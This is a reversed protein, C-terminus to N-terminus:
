LLDYAKIKRYLTSKSLGLMKAAQRINNNCEALAKKLVLKEVEKMPLNSDESPDETIVSIQIQEEGTTAYINTNNSALIEKPLCDSRIVADGCMCVAYLLANQLQRVNGPWHYTLLQYKAASSLTPKPLDNEQSFITTFHEALQIVEAGRERLPPIELSFVSIRYYLDERFQNNKVLEFLNRNTATILRFDVPIDRSGGVHTIVKNELVRLLVAQLELPMDGIEDLFLTGGNAQEIKGSRGQKEAGTFAGGEYGFLESEILSKPIAACNLAIFPGNPRSEHHIAQAYVEKGVGSEGTIMINYSSKAFRKALNISQMSQESSGIISDFTFRTISGTSPKGNKINQNVKRLTLICGNNKNNVPLASYLHLTQKWKKVLFDVNLIPERKKLVTELFPQNGLIEEINLGILDKGNPELM